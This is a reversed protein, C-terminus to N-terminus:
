FGRQQQQITVFIVTGLKICNQVQEVPVDFRCRAAHPETVAAFGIYSSRMNLNDITSPDIQLPIGETSGVIKFIEGYVNALDLLGIFNAPSPLKELRETLVKNDDGDLDALTKKMEDLSGVTSVVRNSAYLSRTQIGDAGFMTEMINKQIGTPDVSPDVVEQKVTVVDVSNDGIQEADHQVDITQKMGNVEYEGAATQLKRMLTKFDDGLEGEFIGTGSIFTSGGMRMSGVLGGIKVEGLQEIVSDLDESESNNKLMRQTYQVGFKMMSNTMGSVGYYGHQGEPLKRLLPLDEAPHAAIWKDSASGTKVVLYDEFQIGESGVNMAISLHSADELIRFAYHAIESYMQIIPEFDVNPPAALQLNNLGDNVKDKLDEIPEEYTETLKAIDVFLSLDGSEFVKAAEGNLKATVKSAGVEPLEAPKEVYVVWEGKAQANMQEDIADVFADPETAPIVFMPVPPGDESLVVGVYWPRSHDVGVLEPNSIAQGLQDAGQGVVQGFGPQIADVFDATKDITKDPENLRIILATSEPFFDLPSDEAAALPAFAGLAVALALFSFTFRRM